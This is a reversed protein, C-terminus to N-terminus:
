TCWSLMFWGYMGMIEQHFWKLIGMKKMIFDGNRWIHFWWRKPSIQWACWTALGMFWGAQVFLDEDTPVPFWSWGRADPHCSTYSTKGHCLFPWGGFFFCSVMPQQVRVVFSKECSKVHNWWNLWGFNQKFSPNITAPRHTETKWSNIMSIERLILIWGVGFSPDVKWYSPVDPPRGSAWFRKKHIRCQWNIRPFSRTIIWGGIQPYRTAM